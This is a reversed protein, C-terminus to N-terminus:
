NVWLEMNKLRRVEDITLMAAGLSRALMFHANTETGDALLIVSTSPNMGEERLNRVLEFGTVGPLDHSSIVLDFRKSRIVTLARAGNILGTVFCQPLHAKISDVVSEQRHAVLVKM